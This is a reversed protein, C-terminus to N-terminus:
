SPNQVHTNLYSHDTLLQQGLLLTQNREIADM